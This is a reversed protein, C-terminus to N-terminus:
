QDFFPPTICQLYSGIIAAFEFKEILKYTCITWHQLEDVFNQFDYYASIIVFFNETQPGVLIRNQATQDPLPLVKGM